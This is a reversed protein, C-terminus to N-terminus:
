ENRRQEAPRLRKLFRTYYGHARLTFPEFEGGDETWPGDIGEGVAYGVGLRDEDVRFAMRVFPGDLALRAVRGTVVLQSGAELAAIVGQAELV